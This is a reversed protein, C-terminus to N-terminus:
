TSVAVHECEREPGCGLSCTQNENHNNGSDTRKIYQDLFETKAFEFVADHAMDLSPAEIPSESTM